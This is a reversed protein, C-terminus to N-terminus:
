LTTKIKQFNSRWQLWIWLIGAVGATILVLSVLQQLRIGAILPMVDIRFFEMVFRGLGALILYLFFVRGRLHSTGERENEGKNLPSSYQHLVTFLIIFVVFLWASEYLFTPHFFYYQEFGAVRKSLEIPIGWPVGTPLGYLEQNFYNGWRGIAQGLALGPVLLDTLYLFKLSLGRGAVVKPNNRIFWVLAVMGGILAGHIALGGRWIAFIELPRQWYYWWENIVHYARAGAFGAVILPSLLEDLLTSAVGAKAFLKRSVLYAAIGGVVLFLGYWHVAFPGFAVLISSPHYTHFFNWIVLVLYCPEVLEGHCDNTM